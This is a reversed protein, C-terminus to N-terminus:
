FRLRRHRKTEDGGRAPEQYSAPAPVNKKHYSHKPTTIVVLFFCLFCGLENSKPIPWSHDAEPLGATGGDELERNSIVSAGEQREAKRLFQKSETWNRDDCQSTILQTRNMIGNAQAAVVVNVWVKISCTLSEGTGTLSVPDCYQATNAGSSL